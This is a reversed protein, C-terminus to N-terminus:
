SEMTVIAIVPVTATDHSTVRERVPTKIIARIDSVTQDVHYVFPVVVGTEPKIQVHRDLSAKGFLMIAEDWSIKEDMTCVRRTAIVNAIRGDFARVVLGHDEAAQVTVEIVCGVPVSSTVPHPEQDAGISMGAMETRRGISVAVSPRGESPQMVPSTFMSADSYANLDAALAELTRNVDAIEHAPENENDRWLGHKVLLEQPARVLRVRIPPLLNSTDPM